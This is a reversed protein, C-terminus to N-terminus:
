EGCASIVAVKRHIFVFLMLCFLHVLTRITSSTKYLLTNIRSM